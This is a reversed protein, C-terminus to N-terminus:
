WTSVFSHKLGWKPVVEPGFFKAIEPIGSQQALPKFPIGQPDSTERLTPFRKLFRTVWEVDCRWIAYAFDDLEIVLFGGMERLYEIAWRAPTAGFETDRANIEAGQEM